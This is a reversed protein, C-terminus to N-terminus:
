ESIDVVDRLQAVVDDAKALQILSPTLHQDLASDEVDV